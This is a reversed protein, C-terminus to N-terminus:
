AFTLSKNVAQCAADADAYTDFLFLDTGNGDTKVLVYQNAAPDLQYTRRNETLGNSDRVPKYAAVTYEGEPKVRFDMSLEWKPHQALLWGGGYQYEITAGDAWAKITVAHKHPTTM